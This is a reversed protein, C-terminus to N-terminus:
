GAGSEGETQLPERLAAAAALVRDHEAQFPAYEPPVEGSRYLPRVEAALDQLAVRDFGAHSLRAAENAAFRLDDIRGRWGPNALLTENAAMARALSRLAEELEDLQSRRAEVDVPAVAPVAEDQDEDVANGLMAKVRDLLGM